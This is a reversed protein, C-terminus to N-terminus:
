QASPSTNVSQYASFMPQDPSSSDTVTSHILRLRAVFQSCEYMATNHSLITKEKLEYEQFVAPKLVRQPGITAIENAIRGSERHLM